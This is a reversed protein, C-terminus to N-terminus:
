CGPDTTGRAINKCVPMCHISTLFFIETACAIFLSSHDRWRIQLIEVEAAQLKSALEEEAAAIQKYNRRRGVRLKEISFFHIRMILM